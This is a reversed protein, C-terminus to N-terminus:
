RPLGPGLVAIYVAAAVGGAVLWARHPQWRLAPSGPEAGGPRAGALAGAWLLWSTGGFSAAMASILILKPSTPNLAGALTAVLSGALYPPLVLRFGRGGGRRGASPLLATLTRAGWLLGYISIAVGLATLALKWVLPRPLGHVFDGWDGIGPLTMVMLYGGPVLVNATALLWWFFRAPAPARRATRWGLRALAALVLNGGCGAAAVTRAKWAAAGVLNVSLEVSSVLTPHLGLALAALGHGIAEHFIAGLLYVVVGIAAPARWPVHPAALPQARAPTPNRNM